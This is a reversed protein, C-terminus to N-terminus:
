YIANVDNGIPISHGARRIIRVRYSGGSLPGDSTTVIYTFVDGEVQESFIVANKEQAHLEVAVRRPSHILSVGIDRYYDTLLADVQLDGLRGAELATQLCAHASMRGAKREDFLM